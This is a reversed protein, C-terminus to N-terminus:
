NVHCTKCRKSGLCNCLDRTMHNKKALCKVSSMPSICKEAKKVKCIVHSNDNKPYTRCSGHWRCTSYISILQFYISILQFCVSNWNFTIQFWNFVLQVDISILQLYISILQFYISCGNFDILVLQFDMSILQFWNCTFQFWNFAFQVDISCWNRQCLKHCGTKFAHGVYRFQNSESLKNTLQTINGCLLDFYRGTSVTFRCIPFSYM